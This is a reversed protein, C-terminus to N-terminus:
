DVRGSVTEPVRWHNWFYSVEGRPYIYNIHHLTEQFGVLPLNYIVVLIPWTSHESSVNGYPCIGDAVLGLRLDTWDTGFNGPLNDLAAWQPSDIVSRMKGDLSKQEVHSALLKAIELCRYMRRLRDMLSFYRVVKVPIDNSRPIYRPANCTPCEQCTQYEAGEYLIHGNPSCHLARHWLGMM